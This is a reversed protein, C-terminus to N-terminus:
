FQEIKNNKACNIKENINPSAILYDIHIENLYKITLCMFGIIM